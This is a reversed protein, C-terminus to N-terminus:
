QPLGREADVASMQYIHNIDVIKRSNWVKKKKKLFHTDLFMTRLSLTALSVDRYCGLFALSSICYILCINVNQTLCHSDSVTLLNLRLM